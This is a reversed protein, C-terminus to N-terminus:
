DAPGYYTFGVGVFSTDVLTEANTRGARVGIDWHRDLAHRYGVQYTDATSNDEALADHVVDGYVRSGGNFRWSVTAGLSHDLVSRTLTLASNDLFRLSMRSNVMTPDRSYSHWSGRVDVRLHQWGAYGLSASLIDDNIGTETTMTMGGPGPGPMPNVVTTDSYLTLHRRAPAFSWRIDGAVRSVRVEFTETVFDGSEGWHEYSAEGRIHDTLLAGVGVFYRNGQFDGRDSPLSTRELAWVADFVPTFHYDGGLYFSRGSESDGLAEVSLTWPRPPSEAAMASGVAIVLVAFLASARM